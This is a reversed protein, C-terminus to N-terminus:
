QATRAAILRMVRQIMVAASTAAKKQRHAASSLLSWRWPYGVVSAAPAIAHAMLQVGAGATFCRQCVLQGLFPCAFGAGGVVPWHSGVLALLAASPMDAIPERALAM